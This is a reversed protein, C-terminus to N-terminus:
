PRLSNCDRMHRPESYQGREADWMLRPHRNPTLLWAWGCDFPSKVNKLALLAWAAAIAFPLWVERFIRSLLPKHKAWFSKM